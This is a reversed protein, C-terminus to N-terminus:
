PPPKTFPKFYQAIPVLDECSRDDVPVLKSSITDIQHIKQTEKKIEAQRDFQVLQFNQPYIQTMFSKSLEKALRGCKTQHQKLQHPRYFHKM